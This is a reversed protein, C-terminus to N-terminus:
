LDFSMVTRGREVVAEQWGTQGNDGEQQTGGTWLTVGPAAAISAAPIGAKLLRRKGYNM